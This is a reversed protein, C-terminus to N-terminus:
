VGLRSRVAWVLLGIRDRAGTKAMLARLLEQFPRLPMRMSTCVQKDSKGAFVGRMVISEEVTFVPHPHPPSGQPNDGTSLLEGTETEKVPAGAESTGLCETFNDGLRYHLQTNSPEMSDGSELTIRSRTVM